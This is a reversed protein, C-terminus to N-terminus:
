PSNQRKVILPSKKWYAILIEISHAQKNVEPNNVVGGWSLHYFIINIQLLFVVLEGFIQMMKGTTKTWLSLQIEQSNYNLKLSM